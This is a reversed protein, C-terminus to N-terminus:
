QTLKLLRDEPLYGIPKGGQAVHAWGGEIPEIVTVLSGAPLQQTVAVTHKMSNSNMCTHIQKGTQTWASNM